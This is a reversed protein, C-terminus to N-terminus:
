LIFKRIQFKPKGFNMIVGHKFQSAKMCAMLQAIHIDDIDKSAKLELIIVNEILLDAIYHGVETGDEDYVPISYQQEVRLGKRRLRNYLANEYVKELFGNKFHVHVGFGTQRALNTLELADM